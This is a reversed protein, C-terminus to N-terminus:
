EEHIFIFNQIYDCNKNHPDSQNKAFDFDNNLKTLNLKKDVYFIQYGIKKM